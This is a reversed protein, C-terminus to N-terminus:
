QSKHKSISKKASAIKKINFVVTIVLLVWQTELTTFFLFASLSLSLSFMLSLSESFTWQEIDKQATSQAMGNMQWQFAQVSCVYIACIAFLMLMLLLLLMWFLLLRWTYISNVNIRQRQRMSSLSLSLSSFVEASQQKAM